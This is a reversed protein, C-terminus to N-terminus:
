LAGAADGLHRGAARDFTPVVPLMRAILAAAGGFRNFFWDARALYDRTLLM